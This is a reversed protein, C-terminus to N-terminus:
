HDKQSSHSKPGLGDAAIAIQRVRTFMYAHWFNAVEQLQGGLKVSDQTGMQEVARNHMDTERASIEHILRAIATIEEVSTPVLEFVKRLLRAVHVDAGNFVPEAGPSPLIIKARLLDITLEFSLGSLKALEEATDATANSDWNDHAGMGITAVGTITRQLIIAVSPETGQDILDLVQRIAPIPLGDGDNRLQRILILKDIHAQSYIASNRTPKKPPPLLGQQMYFHITASSLGTKKALERMRM